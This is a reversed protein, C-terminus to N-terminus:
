YPFRLLHKLWGEWVDSWGHALMGPKLDKRWVALLGYLVGLISVLVVFRWGKFPHIMGFVIAQGLVGVWTSRTLASFQRQLYGRFVVEECFGASGSVVIWLGLELIGRPPIWAQITGTHSPGLLTAALHAAAEWIVWFPTAVTLDRLVDRVSSWRGAGLTLLNGGHQRAGIWAYSFIGWDFALSELFSPILNPHGPAAASGSATSNRQLAFGVGISAFMIVLLALTHFYSAVPEPRNSKLTEALAPPTQM